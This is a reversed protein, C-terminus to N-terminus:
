GEAEPESEGPAASRGTEGSANHEEACLLHWAERYPALKSLSNHPSLSVAAKLNSVAHFPIIYWADIPIVYIGFFDLDGEKYPKQGYRILNCVYNNRQKYSTCKVQVRLFRGGIEVAFDYRSSDGWPKIVRLGHEAAATMFRLEAWEGRLKAHKKSDKGETSM